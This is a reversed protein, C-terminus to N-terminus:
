EVGDRSIKLGRLWEFIIKRSSKIDSSYIELPDGIEAYKKITELSSGFNGGGHTVIPYIKGKFDSM